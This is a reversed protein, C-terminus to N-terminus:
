PNRANTLTCILVDAAAFTVTLSTGSGSPGPNGNLTCAITSAYDALNTGSGASELWQGPAQPSSFRGQIVMGPTGKVLKLRTSSNLLSM